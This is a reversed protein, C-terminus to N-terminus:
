VHPTEMNGNYETWAGLHLACKHLGDIYHHPVLFNVLLIFTSMWVFFIHQASWWVDYYLWGNQLPLSTIKGSIELSKRMRQTPSTPFNVRCQCCTSRLCLVGRLTCHASKYM